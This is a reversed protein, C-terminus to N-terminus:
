PGGRSTRVTVTRTRRWLASRMLDDVQDLQEPRLGLEEGREELASLAADRVEQDGMRFVESLDDAAWGGRSMFEASRGDAGRWRSNLSRGRMRRSGDRTDPGAGVLSRPHRAMQVGVKLHLDATDRLTLLQDFESQEAPSKSRLSGDPDQHLEKLRETTEALLAEADRAAFGTVDTPHLERALKGDPSNNPYRRTLM